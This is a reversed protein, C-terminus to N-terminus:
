DETRLGFTQDVPLTVIPGVGPQELSGAVDEVIDRILKVQSAKVVSFILKNEPSSGAFADKLGAFIPINDGILHGMGESSLVTAGPIGNELFASLIDELYEIKNLFILVLKM